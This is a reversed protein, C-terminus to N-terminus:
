SSEKWQLSMKFLICKFPSIKSECLLFYTSAKPVGAKKFEVDGAGVELELGLLKQTNNEDEWGESMKWTTHTLSLPTSTSRGALPALHM